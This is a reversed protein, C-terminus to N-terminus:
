VEAVLAMVTSSARVHPLIRANQAPQPVDDHSQLRRSARLRLAGCAFGPPLPRIPYRGKGVRGM